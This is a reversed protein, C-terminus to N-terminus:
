LVEVLVPMRENDVPLDALERPPAQVIRLGDDHWRTRHIEGPHRRRARTPALGSAGREGGGDRLQLLPGAFDAAVVASREDLLVEGPECGLSIRPARPEDAEAERVCGGPTWKHVRHTRSVDQVLELLFAPRVLRATVVGRKRSVHHDPPALLRRRHAPVDPDDM